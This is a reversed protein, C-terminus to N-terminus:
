YYQQAVSGNCAYIQLALGATTQAGPVDLCFKRSSGAVGSYLFVVTKGPLPSYLWFENTITNCPWQQVATHNQAGGRADMCM